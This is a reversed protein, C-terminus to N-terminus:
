YETITYSNCIVRKISFEDKFVICGTITDKKYSNTIYSEVGSYSNVDVQYVKRGTQISRYVITGKLILITIILAFVGILSVKILTSVNGSSIKM